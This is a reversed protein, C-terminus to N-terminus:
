QRIKNMESLVHSQKRTAKAQNKQSQEKRGALLELRKNEENISEILRSAKGSVNQEGLGLDVDKFADGLLAGNM